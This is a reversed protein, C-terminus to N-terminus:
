KNLEEQVDELSRAIFAKGGSNNIKKIFEIQEVSPKGTKSKVEIALLRGDALIGLIDSVGKIHFPNNSRRYIKKVPDFIGISQNKWAFIGTINLWRLIHNEIAKEPIIRTKLRDKTQSAYKM